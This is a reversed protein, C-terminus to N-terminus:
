RVMAEREATDTSVLWAALAVLMGAIAARGSRRNRTGKGQRAREAEDAQREDSAWALMEAQKVTAQMGITHEIM